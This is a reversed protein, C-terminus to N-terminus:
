RPGMAPNSQKRVSDLQKLNNLTFPDTPDINLAQRLYMESEDYKGEWSTVYAMKNLIDLSPGTINMVREYLLKAQNYNRAKISAEALSNYAKVNRPNNKISQYLYFAANTERKTELYKAGMIYLEESTRSDRPPDDSFRTPIGYQLYILGLNSVPTNADHVLTLSHHYLPQAKKYDGKILYSNGLDDWGRLGRPSTAITAKAITETTRYDLIRLETRVFYILMFIGIAGTFAYKGWKIKELYLLSIALLAAFFGTGYYLYRESMFWVLKLPSMTPALSVLMLILLGTIERKYKWSLIIAALYILSAIYMGYYYTPTIPNGDYYIMLDKPYLYLLSMTAITYPIGEVVPKMTQQNLPEAAERASLRDSIQGTMSIVVYILVPIAFIFIIASKLIDLKKRLLFQDFVALLPPVILLWVTRFFIASFCFFGISIYLKKINGTKRYRIFYYITINYVLANFLYPNGSIWTVAESNAPHVAFLLAAIFALKSSFIEKFVLYFAVANAMHLSLSMLHHPFTSEGFMHYFISYLITQIRFDAVSALFNRILPNTVFTGYDDILTFDNPFMWVYTFFAVALIILIHKKRPKNHPTNQVPKVKSKKM